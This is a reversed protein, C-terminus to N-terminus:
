CDGAAEDTELHVVNHIAGVHDGWRHAVEFIRTGKVRRAFVSAGFSNIIWM